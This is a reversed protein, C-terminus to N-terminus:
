YDPQSGGTAHSSDDARVSGKEIGPVFRKFLPQGQAISYLTRFEEFIQHTFGTRETGTHTDLSQFLRERFQGVDEGHRLEL